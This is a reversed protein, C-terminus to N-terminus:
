TLLRLFADYAVPRSFLFGQYAHCRSERVSKFHADTEVGEAIVKLGLGEALRSISEIISRDEASELMGLIFSRDIKLMEVPLHRLYTLSSYGKGFDDIALTIGLNRLKQLVEVAIGDTAM